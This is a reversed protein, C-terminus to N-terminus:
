HSVCIIADLVSVFMQLLLILILVQEFWLDAIIVDLHSMFIRHELSIEVVKDLPLFGKLLALTIIDLSISHHM